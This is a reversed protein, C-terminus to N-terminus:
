GPLAVLVFGAKCEGGAGAWERWVLARDRRGAAGDERREGVAVGVAGAGGRSPCGSPRARRFQARRAGHRELQTSSGPPGREPRCVRRPAHRRADLRRQDRRQDAPYRRWLRVRRRPDLPRPRPPAHLAPDLAATLRKMACPVSPRWLKQSSPSRWSVEKQLGCAHTLVLTLGGEVAERRRWREAAMWQGKQGAQVGEGVSWHEARRRLDICADKEVTVRANREERSGKGVEKTRFPHSSRDLSGGAERLTKPWAAPAAHLSREFGPPPPPLPPRAPHPPPSPSSPPHPLLPLLPRHPVVPSVAHTPSTWRPYTTIRPPALRARTALM